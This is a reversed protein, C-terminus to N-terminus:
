PSPRDSRDGWLEDDWVDKFPSEDDAIIHFKRHSMVQIKFDLRDRSRVTRACSPAECKWEYTRAFPLFKLWPRRM